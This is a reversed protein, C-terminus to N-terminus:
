CLSCKCICCSASEGYGILDRLKAGSPVTNNFLVEGCGEYQSSGGLGVSTLCSTEQQLLLPISVYVVSFFCLRSVLGRLLKGSSVSWLEFIIM